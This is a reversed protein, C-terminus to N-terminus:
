WAKIGNKTTYNFTKISALFSVGKKARVFDVVEQYKIKASSRDNYESIILM